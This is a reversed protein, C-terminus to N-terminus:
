PADKAAAVLRADHRVVDEATALPLRLTFIAGQGPGESQALVTGGHITVLERVVALGIGSGPVGPDHTARTFMEFIRALVDPAIGVGRDEVRVVAEDGEVSLRVWVCGPRPTYKIANGILNVLMQQLHMRDIVLVVDDSALVVAVRERDAPADAVAAVAEAIATQLVVRTREIPRPSDEARVARLLEDTLRAMHEGQRQLLRLSEEVRLDHRGALRQLMVAVNSIVSLPNRLEHAFKAITESVADRQASLADRACRLALTQERLDTRNRLLKMYGRVAGAGNRIAISAGTAWFASGDARMMWRDDESHPGVQAAEREQEPARREIDGPLFLVDLPRGLLADPSYGFMRLAAPNAWCITGDPRALFVARLDDQRVADLLLRQLAAQDCGPDIPPVPTPPPAPM